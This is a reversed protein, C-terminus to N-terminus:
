SYDKKKRRRVARDRITVQRLYSANLLFKRCLMNHNPKHVRVKSLSRLTHLPMFGSVANLFVNKKIRIMLENSKSVCSDRRLSCNKNWLMGAALTKTSHKVTADVIAVQTEALFPRFSSLMVQLSRDRINKLVANHLRWVARGHSASDYPAL